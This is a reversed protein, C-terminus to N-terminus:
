SSRPCDSAELSSDTGVPQKGFGKLELYDIRGSVCTLAQGLWSRLRSRSVNFRTTPTRSLPALPPEGLGQGERSPASAPGRDPHQAGFAM